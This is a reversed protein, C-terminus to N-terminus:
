YCIERNLPIDETVITKVTKNGQNHALRGTRHSDSNKPPKPDQEPFPHARSFNRVGFLIVVANHPRKLPPQFKDAVADIAVIRAFQKARV